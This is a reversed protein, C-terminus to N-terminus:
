RGRDGSKNGQHSGGPRHRKEGMAREKAEAAMQADDYKSMIEDFREDIKTILEGVIGAKHEDHKELVAQHRSEHDSKTEAALGQAVEFERAITEALEKVQSSTENNEISESIIELAKALEEISHRSDSVKAKLEARVDDLFMKVEEVKDAIGGHEIKRAEFAQAALESDEEMKAKFTSVLDGLAEIDSKTPLTEPDALPLEEIATKIDGCHGEITEIDAKALKEGADGGVGRERLDELGSRVEKLLAELLNFDEKSATDAVIEHVSDRIEKTVEEVSDIHATRAFGEGEASVLDDLQAKTNRLLTELAVFDTKTTTEEQSTQEKAALEIMSAQVDKLMAEVREIGARAQPDEASSSSPPRMDDLAEVKIRLQTIMVELNELDHKRIGETAGDAVIM